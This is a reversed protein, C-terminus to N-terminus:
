YHAISGGELGSGDEEKGCEEWGKGLRGEGSHEVGPITKGAGIPREGNM